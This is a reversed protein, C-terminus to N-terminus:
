DLHAKRPLWERRQAMQHVVLLLERQEGPRAQRDPCRVGPVATGAGRRAAGPDAGGRRALDDARRMGERREAVGLMCLSFKGSNRAQRKLMPKGCKACAVETKVPTAAADELGGQEDFWRAGLCDPYRVCSLSPRKGKERPARFRVAAGCAPCRTALLAKRQRANKPVDSIYGCAGRGLACALFSGSQGSREVLFGARGEAQCKPCDLAGDPRPMERAAPPAGGPAMPAADIQRVVEGVMAKIEEM